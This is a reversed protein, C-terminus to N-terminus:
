ASESRRRWRSLMVALLVVAGRAMLQGDERVDLLRMGNVLVGIFVVGLLTGWARGQGGSLSTGGVIVAAIVDLEWGVAVTANGSLVRSSLMVGSLASLFGTVALVTVRVRGVAIGSLRAAEANSGVAHVARGFATHEMVVLVVVFALVFLLGPVPVGAVRGSGLYEFGEPFPTLPFGDTLKLAAGRLVTLFALSTIFSPVGFRTRLLGIVAGVGAGVALAAVIALPVSVGGQVLWATLCGAFAVSSGVSLDIEGAVIVMTMGFAVIGIEAVSRLVNLLNDASLFQPSLVALVACTVLLVLELALDWWPVRWRRAGTM